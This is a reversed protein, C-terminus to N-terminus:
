AAWCTGTTPPWGCRRARSTSRRRSTASLLAPLEPDEDGQNAAAGLVVAAERFLHLQSLVRGYLNLGAAHGPDLRLDYECYEKARLYDKMTFAIFADQYYGQLTAKELAQDPSAFTKPQFRALLPHSRQAHGLKSFYLSDALKGHFAYLVALAASFERLDPALRHGELMCDVADLLRNSRMAILGMLYLHPAQAADRARAELCLTLAEDVQGAALAELGREVLTLIPDGSNEEGHVM